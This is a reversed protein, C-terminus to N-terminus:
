PEEAPVIRSHGSRLLGIQRSGGQDSEMTITGDTLLGGAEIPFGRNDFRFDASGSFDVGTIQVGDPVTGQNIIREGVDWGNNEARDPVGNLNGDTLDGGGDNVFAQYTGAGVDVQVVVTESEEIAVFRAQRLKLLVDQLAGSFGHRRKMGEMAFVSIGSLVAIVAIVVMLEILTFGAKNKM